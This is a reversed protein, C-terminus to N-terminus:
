DDGGGSEHDGGDKHQEGQRHDGENDGTETDNDAAENENDAAEPTEAPEATPNAAPTETAEPSESPEPTESLAGPAEDGSLSSQTGASRTLLQITHASAGAGAVLFAGAALSVILVVPRKM